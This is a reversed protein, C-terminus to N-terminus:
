QTKFKERRTNLIRNQLRPKGAAIQPAPQMETQRSVTPNSGVVDAEHLGTVKALITERSGDLSSLTIVDGLAGETKAKFHRKITIGPMRSYVAVIDNSRVLPIRKVDQSLVPAGRRIVRKTELGILGNAQQVGEVNQEVQKWEL